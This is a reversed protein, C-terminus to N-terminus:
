GCVTRRGSIEGSLASFVSAEWSTGVGRERRQQSEGVEDVSGLEVAFALGEGRGVQADLESRTQSEVLAPTPCQSPTSLVVSGVESRSGADGHDEGDRESRVGEIRTREPTEVRALSELGSAGSHAPSRPVVVSATSSSM